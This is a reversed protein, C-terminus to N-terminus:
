RGERASAGDGRGGGTRRDDGRGRGAAAARSGTISKRRVRRSAGEDAQNFRGELAREYRGVALGFRGRQQHCLAANAASVGAAEPTSADALLAEFIELAADYQAADLLERGANFRDNSATEAREDLTGSVLSDLADWTKPGVIGDAELGTDGQFDIVDQNTLPGFIGDIRANGEVDRDHEREKVRRLKMQLQKVDPGTDGYHLTRRGPGAAAGGSGPSGPEVGPETGPVPGNPQRQVFETAARNGATQQVRLLTAESAPQDPLAIPATSRVPRNDSSPVSGPGRRTRTARAFEMACLM